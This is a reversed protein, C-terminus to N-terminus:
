TEKLVPALGVVNDSTITCTKNFQNRSTFLVRPYLHVTGGSILKQFTGEKARIRRYQGVKRSNEVCSM